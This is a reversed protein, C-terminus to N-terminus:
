PIVPHLLLTSVRIAELLRHCVTGLRADGAARLTWPQAEEIYKNARGVLRRAETLGGTIDLDDMAAKAARVVEAGLAPLEDDLPLSPGQEPVRGDFYQRVMKTTRSVLNGYDNALDANYRDVFGELSFDGDRDFPIEAMLVYRVADSGFRDV